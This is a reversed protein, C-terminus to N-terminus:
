RKGTARRAFRYIGQGTPSATLLYLEGREDDGFSLPLLNRDRIPQNAVVRKKAEDYRLAWIKASIYDAYVYAGELEPLRAGRYVAGGIICKGVDHHYEWIPDILDARPGVGTAGFPHLGERLKWGFNGGATLINIEEYLDQGVDGAWLKGTKRDFAMRWVNRLGYAWIEPLADKRGVFPNDKPVAYPKGDDKRDVDLRLVKGLLTKLNQANNFPDNASGGDGLAVYLYGDPGFCLTGGDHNWFPRKIRLLVEESDPDARDPDDARVRFRSLVNVLKDKKPTYFVFFHGNSKYRPHFALGLFGEENTEEHYRVRPQIDLFVKTQAAAQDNPFVHIVGRQTAVFVRNSGDGAHTLVIPRLPVPLGKETVGQWGTWKLKPFALATELPLPSEDVVHGPIQASLATVTGAKSDAVLLRKGGADLCLATPEQLGRALVVPKAGPRPIALVRGGKLDTLYLRGFKDFMLGGGGGVGDAAVTTTGDTFRIRHLQGATVTLLQANGDLTLGIPATFPVQKLPSVVTGGKEKPRIAYVAAKAGEEGTGTVFLTGQEDVALGTIAKTILPIAAAAVYEEAKGKLNIRWVRQRDAAFLWTQWAVLPGPADFGSAFPTAKGDKLVLVLGGTKGGQDGASVFVRGDAGVAVGEPNKLGTLLPRPAQGTGTTPQAAILILSTLRLITRM